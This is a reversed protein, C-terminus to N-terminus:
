KKQKRKTKTKNTHKDQRRNNTQKDAQKEKRRIRTIQIRQIMDSFHPEIIMEKKNERLKDTQQEGKNNGSSRRGMRAIKRSTLM